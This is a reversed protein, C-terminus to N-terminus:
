FNDAIPAPGKLFIALATRPRFVELIDTNHTAFNNGQRPYRIFRGPGIRGMHLAYPGVFEIYCIIRKVSVSCRGSNVIVWVHLMISVIIM